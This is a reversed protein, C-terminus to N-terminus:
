RAAKAISIKEEDGRFVTADVYSCQQKVCSLFSLRIMPEGYAETYTLACFKVLM